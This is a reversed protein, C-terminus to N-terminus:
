ILNGSLIEKPKKRTKTVEAKGFSTQKFDSMLKKEQIQLEKNTKLYLLFYSMFAFIFVPWVFYGYGGLFLIDIIM